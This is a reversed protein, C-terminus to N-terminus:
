SLRDRAVEIALDSPRADDADSDGPRVHQSLHGRSSERPANRAGRDFATPSAGLEDHDIERSAVANDNLRAKGASDQDIAAIEWLVLPAVRRDLEPQVISARQVVAVNTPKAGHREHGVFAKRLVGVRKADLRKVWAESALM